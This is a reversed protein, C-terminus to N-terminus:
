KLYFGTTSEKYKVKYINIICRYSIHDMTFSDWLLLIPQVEGRHTKCQVLRVIFNPDKNESLIIFMSSIKNERSLPISGHLLM